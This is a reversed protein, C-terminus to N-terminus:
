YIKTLQVGTKYGYVTGKIETTQGVNYDKEEENVIVILDSLRDRDESMSDALFIRPQACDMAVPNIEDGVGGINSPCAKEGLLASVVIGSVIVDKENLASRHEVLYKVSIPATPASDLPYDSYNYLGLKESQEPQITISSSSVNSQVETISEVNIKGSTKYNSDAESSLIGSVEVYEGAAIKGSIIDQQNLNILNYYNGDDAHLGIECELTIQNNTSRSPLCDIQGTLTVSKLTQGSNNDKSKDHVNGNSTNVKCAVLIISFVLFTLVFLGSNLKIKTM